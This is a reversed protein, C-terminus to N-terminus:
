QLKSIKLPVSSWNKSIDVKVNAGEYDFMRHTIVIRFEKQHRHKDSHIFFKRYHLPIDSLDLKGWPNTKDSFDFYLVPRACIGCGQNCLVNSLSELLDEIQFVVYYKYLSKLKEDSKYEGNNLDQPTIYSFCCIPVRKYEEYYFTTKIDGKIVTDGIKIENTYFPIQGENYNQEDNKINEFAGASNFFIRGEVFDKAYEKKEFYRIGLM